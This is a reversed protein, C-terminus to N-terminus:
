ELEVDMNTVDGQHVLELPVQGVREVAWLLKGSLQASVKAQSSLKDGGNGVGDSPLEAPM